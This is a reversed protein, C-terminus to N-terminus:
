TLTQRWAHPSQGYAQKFAISLHFGSSFGVRAAVDDLKADSSALLRRARTLRLHIVYQWPAFGTHARFARRFHSYAVGLREALAEVNVAEAHNDSLYRAAENVAREIRSPKSRAPAIRACLALVQLAAASLEPQFGISGKQSRRHIANLMEELGADIAGGRLITRPLFAGAQLLGEVVPGQVEIWSEEWGTQPDPHYRHWTKPLLLFVMGTEVSRKGTARTELWGRGSSILVIQLSDLVRGHEWDFHHDEPHKAPPYGAGAPIRSFGSATVGLGWQRLEPSIPLYRFYNESFRTM